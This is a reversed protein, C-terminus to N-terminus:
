AVKEREVRALKELEERFLVLRVATNRMNDQKGYYCRQVGECKFGFKLVTKLYRKRKKMVLVTVRSADFETIAYRALARVLGMTLTGHGYYSFDVNATNWNHWLAVGVLQKQEDMIGVARAYEFMPWGYKQFLAQAVMSDMGFLLSKAM